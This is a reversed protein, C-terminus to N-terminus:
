SQEAMLMLKLNYTVYYIVTLRCRFFRQLTRILTSSSITVSIASTKPRWIARYSLAALTTWHARHTSFVIAWLAISHQAGMINITAAMDTATLPGPAM